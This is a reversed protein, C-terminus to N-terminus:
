TTYQSAARGIGVWKKTIKGNELVVKVMKSYDIGKDQIFGGRRAIELSELWQEERMSSYVILKKDERRVELQSGGKAREGVSFVYNVDGARLVLGDVVPICVRIANQHTRLLSLEEEGAVLLLEKEQANEQANVSVTYGNQLNDKTGVLSRWKLFMEKLRPGVSDPEDLRGTWTIAKSERLVSEYETGIEDTEIQDSM